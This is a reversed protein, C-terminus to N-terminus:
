LTSCKREEGVESLFNQFVNMDYTTNRVNLVTSTQQKMQSYIQLSKWDTLQKNWYIPMQFNKQIATFSVKM